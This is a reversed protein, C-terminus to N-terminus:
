PEVVVRAVIAHGADHAEVEFVGEFEAPFRFRAPSGPASNRTINYGHLHIEDPLDSLVNLRVPDGKRVRIEQIGGVPAGNEIRVRTVPAPEPETPELEPPPSAPQPEPEAPQTPPPAAPETSSGPAETASATTTTADEAPDITETLTPDSSGSAQPEEDDGGPRALAFAVAAIAVAGVILAIRWGRTM